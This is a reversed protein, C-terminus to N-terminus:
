SVTVVVPCFWLTNDIESIFTLFVGNSTVFLTDMLVDISIFEEDNVAAGVISDVINLRGTKFKVIEVVSFDKVFEVSRCLNVLVRFGLSVGVDLIVM